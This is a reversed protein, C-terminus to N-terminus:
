HEKHNRYAFCVAPFDRLLKREIEERRVRASENITARIKESNEKKNNIIEIIM